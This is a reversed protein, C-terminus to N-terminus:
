ANSEKVAHAEFLQRYVDPISQKKLSEIRVCVFTSVAEACIESEGVKTVRYRMTTSSKGVRLVDMRVRVTDGFRVPKKFSTEIHAMPWGTGEDGLVVHFPHGAQTFFEEFALHFYHLFRPYYVIQAFDVDDFRVPIDYEFAM